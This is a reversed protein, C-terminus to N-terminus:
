IYKHIYIHVHIYIYVYIYVYVYMYIICQDDVIRWSTLKWKSMCQNFECEGRSSTSWRLQHTPFIHPTVQHTVGIRYHWRAFLCWAPVRLFHLRFQTGALRWTLLGQWSCTASSNRLYMSVKAVMLMPFLSRSAHSLIYQFELQLM